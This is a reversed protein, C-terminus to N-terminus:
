EFQMSIPFRFYSRVPEGKLKAPNWKGKIGRVVREAERNFDAHPGSAKISTITGDKEVIFTVTGRIIEGSDSSVAGTDFNQLVKNRFRDIGGMYDAEVDVSSIVANPDLAPVGHDAAGGKDANGDSPVANGVVGGSADRNAIQVDDSKVEAPKENVANRTPVPESFTNTKAPGAPQSKPALPQTKKEPVEDPISKWVVPKKVEIVPAEPKLAHALWPIMALVAIFALSVLLAKQLLRNAETRLAYAGYARNRNEFVVENLLRHPDHTLFNRSM